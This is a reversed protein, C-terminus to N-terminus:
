MPLEWYGIKQCCTHTHALCKNKNIAFLYPNFDYNETLHWHIRLRWVFTFTSGIHFYYDRPIFSHILFSRTPISVTGPFSLSLPQHPASPSNIQLLLSLLHLAQADQSGCPTWSSQLPAQMQLGEMLLIAPCLTLQSFLGTTLLPCNDTIHICMGEKKSKRGM